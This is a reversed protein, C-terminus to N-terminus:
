PKPNQAGGGVLARVKARKFSFGARVVPHSVSLGGHVWLSFRVRLGVEIRVWSGCVMFWLPPPPGEMFWLSPSDPKPHQVSPAQAM